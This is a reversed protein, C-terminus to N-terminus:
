RLDTVVWTKDLGKTKFRFDEKNPKLPLYKVNRLELNSVGDQYQLVEELGYAKEIYVEKAETDVTWRAAGDCYIEVGQGVAKYCDQQIILSGRLVLPTPSSYVLSYDLTVCNDNLRSLIERGLAEQASVQLCLFAIIISIYLRKMASFSKDIFSPM